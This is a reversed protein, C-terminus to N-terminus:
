GPLKVHVPEAVSPVHVNVGAPGLPRQQDQYCLLMWAGVQPHPLCESVCGAEEDVGYGGGRSLASTQALVTLTRPNAIPATDRYM